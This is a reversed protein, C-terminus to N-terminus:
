TKATSASLRSHHSEFCRLSCGFRDKIILRQTVLQAVLTPSSGKLSLKRTKLIRKSAKLV